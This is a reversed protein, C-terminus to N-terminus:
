YKVHFNYQHGSTNGLTAQTNGAQEWKNDVSPVQTQKSFDASLIITSKYNFNVKIHLDLRCM